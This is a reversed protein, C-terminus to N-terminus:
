KKYLTVGDKITELLQIDKLELPDVKLPNKDIIILDARKGVKISGKSNEEFYEYAANITLGKLADYVDVRQEPGSVVGERTIRNVASWITHFMDPQVVPTDTHFNYILGRDLASKVPSVRSGREQGFNKLHIDGWYNVHAVFISPIMKMEKMKDLQDDRVTQCHIMVPRLNDKNLNTSAKLEKEYLSLFQDGAADGNCHVLLQQNDELATKMATAVYDDKLWPYGYYEPDDEYPQTMWATRGQPSGDLVIKYGGIKFRNVYQRVCDKNDVLVKHTDDNVDFTPYAVVDVLLRGENAAKRLIGISMDNGAGEQVTTVGNSIYLMQADHLQRELDLKMNMLLMQVPTQATEELYGTPVRSDPYREILGGEVDPTTEDIGALELAKSNAACMHVSTHMTIVPATTSVQDLVDRTPHAQEKLFNHDYAYGVIPDTEGLNHAKKFDKLLQVIDKFCEASSLDAMAEYQVTMSLHGHTDIFSPMLTNGNLNIRQCDDLLQKEIDELAGSAAIIGNRILVAEPQDNKNEMTIIDGNYYLKEMTKYGRKFLLDAILSDM